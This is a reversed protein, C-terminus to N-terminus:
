LSLMKLVLSQIYANSKVCSLNTYNPGLLSLLVHNTIDGTHPYVFHLRHNVTDHVYALAPLINYAAWMNSWVISGPRNWQQIIPFLTTAARNAVPVLFGRKTESEYGEFIWQQSVLRVVEYKM